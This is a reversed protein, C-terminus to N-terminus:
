PSSCGLCWTRGASVEAPCLRLGGLHEGGGHHRRPSAVSFIVTNLLYGLLPVATFANEYNEWPPPWPSSCRPASGTTPRRLEEPLQAGDLLLPVAGGGGLHEAAPLDPRYAPREQRQMAERRKKRPLSKAEVPAGEKLGTARKRTVLLNVCTITLVIVFLIIAAASAYSPYGGSDGYLMDYVYGVITNMGAANLDTGFLAVADSYAKFAGIFGTIVLYVIMPSIMPLTIRFFTRTRSTGDVRAAKYYEDNVSALASTLVLIKFPLVVWITYFCLVFMKAWHPGNIFDIPGAGFWALMLNILGDTYETRQFLVMFVLGVALTNTVYPLFYITQFLQRLPKISSLATAIVIALVTSTPVTIIVLVFTNEVAQLFYPDHLVYSYNYLGIGQYTQSAFNYCEEVSYILVDVLPYILFLGLLVLAPLLYLWAKKSNRDM